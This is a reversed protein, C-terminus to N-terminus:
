LCWTTFLPLCCLGQQPRQRTPVPTLVPYTCPAPSRDISFIRIRSRTCARPEDHAEQSLHPSKHMCRSPIRATAVHAPNRLVWCGFSGTAAQGRDDANLRSASEQQNLHSPPNTNSQILYSARLADKRNSSATSVTVTLLHVRSYLTIFASFRLRPTNIKAAARQQHLM